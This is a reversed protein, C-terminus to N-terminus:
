PRQELNVLEEVCEGCAGARALDGKRFDKRRVHPESGAGRLGSFSLAPCLGMAQLPLEGFAQCCGRGAACPVQPFFDAQHHGM